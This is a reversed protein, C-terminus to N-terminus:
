CYQESPNIFVRATWMIDLIQSNSDTRIAQLTWGSVQWLDLNTFVVDNSSNSQTVASESHTVGVNIGSNSTSSLIIQGVMNGQNNFGFSSANYDIVMGSIWAPNINLQSAVENLDLWTQASNTLGTLRKYGTTNRISIPTNNFSSYSSTSDTHGSFESSELHNSPGPYATTQVTGDPFTFGNKDFTWEEGQITYTYASLQATSTFNSVFAYSTQTSYVVTSTTLIGPAIPGAGVNIATSTSSGVTNWFDTDSYLYTGYWVQTGTSGWGGNTPQYESGDTPVQLTIFNAQTLQANTATTGTTVAFTWGSMLLKGNHVAAMRHGALADSGETGGYEGTFFRQFLLNGDTDMKGWWLQSWNPASTFGTLYLYGDQGITIDAVILNNQNYLVSEWVTTGTSTHKVVTSVPGMALAFGATYVNGAKDAAVSTAYTALGPEVGGFPQVQWLLNGSFDYAATYASSTSASNDGAQGVIYIGQSDMDIATGGAFQNGSFWHNGPQSTFPQNTLGNGLEVQWNLSQLDPNVSYLISNNTNFDIGVVYVTGTSDVVLDSSFVGTEYAFYEQSVIHGDHSNLKFVYSGSQDWENAIVYINDSADVYISEGTVFSPASSTGGDYDGISQQWLLGGHTNYKIVISEFFPAGGSGDYGGGPYVQVTGVVYANGQSDYACSAGWNNYANNQIDGYQSWWSAAGATITATSLTIIKLTGDADGITSSQPLRLSGDTGFVWNNTHSNTIIQVTGDSNVGVAGGNYSNSAYVGNPNYVITEGAFDLIQGGNPFTLTGNNDFIWKHSTGGTEITVTGTSDNAAVILNTFDNYDNGVFAGWYNSGVTWYGTNELELHSQQTYAYFHDPTLEAYIGCGSPVAPVADWRTPLSSAGQFATSQYTGDPFALNPGITWTSSGTGVLADAIVTLGTAGLVSSDANWMSSVVLNTQPSVFQRISLTDYEWNVAGGNDARDVSTWNVAFGVDHSGDPNGPNPWPTGFFVIGASNPEAISMTITASSNNNLNNSYFPGSSSWPTILNCGLFTTVITSQDDVANDFNITITDTLIQTSSNVAYWIEAQQAANSGSDLYISRRTWTLGMGTVGTISAPPSNNATEAGSAVVIVTNGLATVNSVYSSTTASAFGIYTNAVAPINTTTIPLNGLSQLPGPVTLTGDLDFNWVNYISLSPNTTINFPVGASFVFSSTNSSNEEGADLVGVAFFASPDQTTGQFRLYTSSSIDLEGYPGGDNVLTVSTTGSSLQFGNGSGSGGMATTWILTTGSAPWTLVQGDTGTTIPLIYSPLLLNGDGDVAVVNGSNSISNTVTSRAHGVWKVGDFIYIISNDGVYQTGISPNSPFNLQSM